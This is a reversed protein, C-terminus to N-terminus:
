GFLRFKSLNLVFLVFIAILFCQIFGPFKLNSFHLRPRTYKFPQYLRYFMYLGILALSMLYFQAIYDNGMSYAKAELTSSSTNSTFSEVATPASAPSASFYQPYDLILFQNIIPARYMELDALFNTYEPNTLQEASIANMYGGYKPAPLYQKPQNTSNNLYTIMQQQTLQPEPISLQALKPNTMPPPTISTDPVPTLLGNIFSRTFTSTYSANAPPQFIQKITDMTMSNYTTTSTYNIFKPFLSLIPVNSLSYTTNYQTVYQPKVTENINDQTKQTSKNVSSVLDGMTMSSGSPPLTITEFGESVTSNNIALPDIGSIDSQLVWGSASGSNAGDIYISIPVCAPLNPPGSLYGTAPNPTSNAPSTVVSQVTSSQPTSLSPFFTSSNINELSAMLSYLLGRNGNNSPHQISTMLINDIVVSRNHTNGNPDICKTNTDILYRKGPLTNSPIQNYATSNGSILADSYPAVLDSGMLGQQQLMQDPTYYLSSYDVANTDIQNYLSFPPPTALISKPTSIAAAPTTAISPSTQPSTQIATNPTAITPTAM